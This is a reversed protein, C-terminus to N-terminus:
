RAPAPPQPNNLQQMLAARTAAQAAAPDLPVPSPDAPQSSPSASSQPYSDFNAPPANTYEVQPMMNFIDVAPQGRKNEKLEKKREAEILARTDAADARAAGIVGPLRQADAITERAAIEPTKLVTPRMLVMLETRDKKNDNSTFLRGLIPIDMLIPVGSKTHSKSTQVFGGLIVTDRNSVTIETNLTRKVTNPVNNGDIATYGSIEDIEQGIQMVVLGDPNIFPTVDLEVGVSLQQYSSGGYGGTNYNNYTQSVYPVTQGVFFQAPKAQSTQIRPRQIISSNNDSEAATVLINWTDGINGFYSLGGSLANTPLSSSISSVSGNTTLNRITNLFSSGGNIMAGGGTVNSNNFQKPQQVVSVGTNVEHGLGVDIIISEILVQALLVDLKGIVEKIHDLDMRTAFVLLSNSRQDAIIKTQGFIQIQDRGGGVGGPSAASGASPTGTTTGVIAQLRQQFTTGATPTGNAGATGATRAAGGATGAGGPYSTGGGLTGVAAGGGPRVGNITSNATSSGFSVTSGGSGGLSNLASAIDAATAYRIPIVESIYEAPVSVDIRDIMDLMRKINEPLDRMVLIGNEDIGSLGGAIKAYPQILPIMATPNVYRLQVIHTMYTGIDPISAVGNTDFLGGAGAAEALPVVKVFKDGVPVIAIGNIAFIAELAQLVEAKTLDTKTTLIIQANPLAGHLLTKNIYDSYIKLAVELDIGEWKILGAPIIGDPLAAPTNAPAQARLELSTLALALALLFLIKM